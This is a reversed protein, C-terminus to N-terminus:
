VKNNIFVLQGFPIGEDNPSFDKHFYLEFDDRMLDFIIDVLLANQFVGGSFALKKFEYKNAIKIIYDVLSLHFKAAILKRDQNRDLDNLISKILYILFNDPIDKNMLYSDDLTMKNSYYYDAAKQEIRMSAEAEFEHIDYDFLISSVADFLRGMSTTKLKTNQLLKQYINWEINTFKNKLYRDMEKIKHSVALASIRPEKVMKDAVIFEFEELHFIRKMKHNSYKFFEGGWIMGDDGLGTGDWIVGLIPENINLLNNEGLVSYFHAKHHQLVSLKSQHKKALEMGFRSAYYDPHKDIVIQDIKEIQFINVLHSFTDEYSAQAELVETNGLYQSIYINEKNILGFTSKLMSGGAFSTKDDLSIDPNIYTPAKGRSRRLVIKQQHTNTFQVVSDDQPVVIERNNMVIVDAIKSLEEVAKEDSYIISSNSINGSTAIIPKNFQNLLIKYLPTYPLMIGIRSLNSNIENLAIKSKIQNKAQLLVISASVSILEEQENESLFVDNQIMEVSPYMLAFPKKPRRKRKRLINITEPKTADCTLLYGGIGKIAVIKGKNWLSLIYSLDDFNEQFQGNEFLQMEIKCDPCSNTQSFHRRELPNNYETQCTKCMTFNAMTTNPRDYPLKTIISYRPGCNTCTIFPYQYRRNNIDELESNCDKCIAVDPRILLNPKVNDDDSHIIHFDLFHEAKVKHIKSDTVIALPPLDNLLYNLFKNASEKTANIRIHVGDNTNKVWGNLSHEIANKYVFPRFGVGQVIGKIHIHYTDLVM